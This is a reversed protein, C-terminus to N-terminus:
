RLIGLSFGPSLSSQGTSRKTPALPSLGLALREANTLGVLGSPTTPAALAPLASLVGFLAAFSLPAVNKM